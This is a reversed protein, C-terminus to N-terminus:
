FFEVNEILLSPTPSDTVLHCVYAQDLPIERSYWVEKKWTITNNTFSVKEPSYSLGLGIAKLFAEKQTWYKYFVHLPNPAQVIASWEHPAFQSQMDRLDIEKILEIDIGLKDLKSCACVVYAGSHSINFSLTEDLYPKKHATYQIAALSYTDAGVAQLAKRLLLNGLLGRQADEWNRFRLIKEQM